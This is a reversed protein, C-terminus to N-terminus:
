WQFDVLRHSIDPSSAVLHYRRILERLSITIAPRTSFYVVGIYIHAEDVAAGIDLGVQILLDLM